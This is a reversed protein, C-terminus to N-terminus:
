AFSLASANILKMGRVDRAAISPTASSSLPVAVEFGSGTAWILALGLHYCAHTSMLKSFALAPMSTATGTIQLVFDQQLTKSGIRWRLASSMAGTFVAADVLPGDFALQPCCYPGRLGISVVAISREIVLVALLAACRSNAIVTSPWSTNDVERWGLASLM